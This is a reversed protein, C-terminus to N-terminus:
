LKVRKVLLLTWQRCYLVFILISFIDSFNLSNKNLKPFNKNVQEDPLAQQVKDVAESSQKMQTVGTQSKRPFYALISKIPVIPIQPASSFSTSQFCISARRKPPPPVPSAPAAPAAPPNIEPLQAAEDATVRRNLVRAPKQVAVMLELKPVRDLVVGCNVMRSVQNIGFYKMVKM